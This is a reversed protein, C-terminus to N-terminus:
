YSVGHLTSINPIFFTVRKTKTVLVEGDEHQSIMESSLKKKVTKNLQLTLNIFSGNGRFDNRSATKYNYIM